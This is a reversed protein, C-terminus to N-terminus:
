RRCRMNESSRTERSSVGRYGNAFASYYRGNTKYTYLTDPSCAKPLNLVQYRLSGSSRGSKLHEWGYWRSRYTSGEISNAIPAGISCRGRLHTNVVFPSSSSRSMHPNDQTIRCPVVAAAVRIDDPTNGTITPAGSSGITLDYGGSGASYTGSDASVLPAQDAPAPEVSRDEASMESELGDNQSFASASESELGANQSFASAPPGFSIFMSATALCTVAGSLIKNRM